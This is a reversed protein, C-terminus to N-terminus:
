GRVCVGGAVLIAVYHLVKNELSPPVAIRKVPLFIPL